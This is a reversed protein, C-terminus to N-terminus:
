RGSPSEYGRWAPDLADLLRVATTEPVGQERLGALGLWGGGDVVRVWGGAGRRVLTQGGMEGETWTALGWGDEVALGLVQRGAAPDVSEPAILGAMVAQRAAEREDVASGAAPQAGASVNDLAFTSQVTPGASPAGAAGAGGSDRPPRECGALGFGLGLGCFLAV